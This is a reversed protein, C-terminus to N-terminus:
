SSPAPQFRSASHFSYSGSVLAMFRSPISRVIHTPQKQAGTHNYPEKTINQGANSNNNSLEPANAAPEHM